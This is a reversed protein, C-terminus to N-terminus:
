TSELIHIKQRRKNTLSLRMYIGLGPSCSRFLGLRSQSSQHDGHIAMVPQSLLSKATCSAQLYYPSYYLTSSSGLRMYAPGVSFDPVPPAASSLSAPQPSGMSHATPTRPRVCAAPRQQQVYACDLLGGAHATWQWLRVHHGIRLQAPRRQQSPICRYMSCALERFSEFLSCTNIKGCQLHWPIQKHRFSAM